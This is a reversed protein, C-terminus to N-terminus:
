FWIKETNEFFTNEENQPHEIDQKKFTKLIQNQKKHFKQIKEKESITSISKLFGFAENEDFDKKKTKWFFSWIRKLFNWWSLPERKWSWLWIKTKKIDQISLQEKKTEIQVRKNINEVFEAAVVTQMRINKLEKKKEALVKLIQM